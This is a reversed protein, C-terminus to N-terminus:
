GRISMPAKFTRSYEIWGTMSSAIFSRIVTIAVRIIVGAAIAASTVQLAAAFTQDRENAISPQIAKGASGWTNDLSGDALLRASCFVGTGAVSAARCRGGLLIRGNPQVLVAYAGDFDSDFGFQLKGRDAIVAATANFGATDLSGNSNYRAVCFRTVAGNSFAGGSSCAGAVLIKGDAQIAVGKAADEDTNVPTVVKGGSGFTSDLAGSALLPSARASDRSSPVFKTSASM